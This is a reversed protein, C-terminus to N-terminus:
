WIISSPTQYYRTARSRCSDCCYREFKGMEKEKGCAFCKRKILKEEAKPKSIKYYDPM